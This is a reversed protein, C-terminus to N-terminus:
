KFQVKDPTNPQQIVKFQVVKYTVKSLFGRGFLIYHLPCDPWCVATIIREAECVTFSPINFCYFLLILNYSIILHRLKEHIIESKVCMSIKLRSGVGGNPNKVVHTVLVLTDDALIDFSSQVTSKVM